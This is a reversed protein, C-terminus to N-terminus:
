PRSTASQAARRQVEESEERIERALFFNLATRIAAIAALQGIERFTPAVATRLLDSALQFELGLALFRGLDLRVSVFSDARKGHAVSNLLRGFTIAAGGFIILVAGAEVLRVLWAVASRLSEESLESDVRDQRGAPWRQVSRALHRNRNRNRPSCLRAGMSSGLTRFGIVETRRAGRAARPISQPSFVTVHVGGESGPAGVKRAVKGLVVARPFSGRHGGGFVYGIRWTEGPWHHGAPVVSARAVGENPPPTDRGTRTM